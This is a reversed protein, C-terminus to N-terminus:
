NTAPAHNPIRPVNRVELDVQVCYRLSRRPPLLTDSYNGGIDLTAKVGIGSRSPQRGCHCCLYLDFAVGPGPPRAGSEGGALVRDHAVECKGCGWIDKSSGPPHFLAPALLMVLSAWDASWSPSLWGSLHWDDSCISTSGFLGTKSSRGM